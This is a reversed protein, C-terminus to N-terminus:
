GLHLVKVVKPALQFAVPGFILIGDGALKFSGGHLKLHLHFLFLVANLVLEAMQERLHSGDGHLSAAGVEFRWQRWSAYSGIAGTPANSWCNVAAEGLTVIVSSSWSVMSESPLM